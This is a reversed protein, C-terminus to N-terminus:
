EEFGERLVLVGLIFVAYLGLGIIMTTLPESGIQFSHEYITYKFTIHKLIIALITLLPLTIITFLLVINIKISRISVGIEHLLEFEKSRSSYIWGPYIILGMSFVISISFLLIHLNLQSLGIRSLYIEQLNEVAKFRVERGTGIVALVRQILGLKATSINLRRSLRYLEEERGYAILVSLSSYGVGRIMRATDLGTILESDLQAGTSIVGKVELKYFSNTYPSYIEIFDGKELGYKDAIEKGIWVCALCEDVGVEEDVFYKTSDRDLGRLIFTHNYMNVPFILERIITLNLDKIKNEITSEDFVATVPSVALPSIIVYEGDPHKPPMVLREWSSYSTDIYSINYALVSAFMAVLVTYIIIPKLGIIRGYLMIRYM